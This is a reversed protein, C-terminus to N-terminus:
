VTVRFWDVDVFGVNSHNSEAHAFMGIKAGVWHGPKAQFAYECHQVVGEVLEYSFRCLGGESVAVQLIIEETSDVVLYHRTGLVEDTSNVASYHTKELVENVSDVVSYHTTEVVDDGVVLTIALEKTHETRSVALYCYQQGFVILGVKDASQLMTVDMKVSATFTSAPFKQMLLNPATYIATNTVEDNTLCYLRLHSERQFDFWAKSPNAQWQWQLGLQLHDFEDTTALGMMKSERNVNPKRYHLVPEGIGDENSDIGIVPWDNKWTMPQLHVIRGYVGKDQFHMFWSEGSALEVWAGQHPGNIATDGQQLVIKDEYPGYISTSRLVTQWGTAVGGAPAFIYYYGNRKYLKPGELTPHDLTGDFVIQGEDLLERGDPSMRCINLQHQIGCRSHAYAHVIYAQGDDDWFPCPDILGLGAKVLHLSSWEGAPDTATTMFIGKDPDGYFIWYQQQHFRIAPAWVGKGHQPRNYEEFDFRPIAHQILQWNVLDTSHLIPLGPVHSFSSATMYFNDGVQIVDLDSYDAHLIPNSYTGDGQDASMMNMVPMTSM